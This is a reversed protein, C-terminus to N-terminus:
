LSAPLQANRRLQIDSHWPHPKRHSYIEAKGVWKWTPTKKNAQHTPTSRDIVISTGTQALQQTGNPM